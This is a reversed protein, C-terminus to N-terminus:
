HTGRLRRREIERALAFAGSAYRGAYSPCDAAILALVSRAAKELHLHLQEPTCDAFIQRNSMERNSGYEFLQPIPQSQAAKVM